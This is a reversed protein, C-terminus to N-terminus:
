QQQNALFFDIQNEIDRRTDDDSRIYYDKLNTYPNRNEIDALVERIKVNIPAFHALISKLSNLHLGDIKEKISALQEGKEAEAKREKEAEKWTSYETVDKYNDFTAIPKELAFEFCRVLCYMSSDQKAGLYTKAEEQCSISDRYFDSSYLMDKPELGEYYNFRYKYDVQISDTKNGYIGCKYYNITAPTKKSKVTEM